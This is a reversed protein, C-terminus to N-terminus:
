VTREKLQLDLTALADIDAGSIVASSGDALWVGSIETAQARATLGIGGSVRFRRDTRGPAAEPRVVVVQGATIDQGLSNM